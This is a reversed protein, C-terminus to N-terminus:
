LACSVDAFTFIQVSDHFRIPTRSYSSGNKVETSTPPSNDVERWTQKIGLCCARQHMAPRDTRKMPLFLRMRRATLHTLKHGHLKLIIITLQINCKQTINRYFYLFRSSRTPKQRWYKNINSSAHGLQGVPSSIM